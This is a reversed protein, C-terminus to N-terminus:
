YKGFKKADRLAHMTIISVTDFIHKVFINNKCIVGNINKEREQTKVFVKRELVLIFFTKKM